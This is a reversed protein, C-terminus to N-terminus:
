PVQISTNTNVFGSFPVSNPKAGPTLLFSDSSTFPLLSTAQNLYSNYYSKKFGLQGNTGMLDNQYGNAPTSPQWGPNLRSLNDSNNDSYQDRLGLMHATEHLVSYNSAGNSYVLGSNVGVNILNGNKDKPFFAESRRIKSPDDDNDHEAEASFTLLNEGNKLDGVTKDKSYQYSVNFSINVGDVNSSKFEKAAAKTLDAARDESAGAGTIYVTSRISVGTIDGKKNRTIDFIVDRGDPDIRKIPNNTVYSYPSIGSYKAALPDPSTWRLIEEDTYSVTKIVSDRDDLLKVLKEERNVIMYRIPSNADHNNVKYIDVMSPKPEEKAKYGFIAYPNDQAYIASTVFCIIMLTLIKKM